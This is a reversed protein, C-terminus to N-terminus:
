TKKNPCIVVITTYAKIADMHPVLPVEEFPVPSEAMSHAELRELYSLMM